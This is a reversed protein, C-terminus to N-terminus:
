VLLYNVGALSDPADASFAGPLPNMESLTSVARHYRKAVSWLTDEHSPYAVTYSAGARPLEEDLVADYFATIEGDAFTLIRVAIEADVAIREGDMRARCTIPTLEVEYSSPMEREGECLYRFPVEFEQVTYDEEASLITQCRCKGNLVYKGNVTEFSALTPYLTLDVVNQGTRIGAEEVPLTTNLSFNGGTCLLFRSVPYSRYSVEGDAATSYLDRTYSVTGNRYARATLHVGLELLIRGEEVTVLIDSCVGRCFAVCNVEAGDVPIEASFPIRRNQVTPLEKEGERCCLLKVAVEGRCNVCGSGADADSIYVQGEASIVRDSAGGDTLIEDGLRIEDGMGVFIEACETSGMLRELGVDPSGMIREELLRMGYLRVRSHLRCKINLKRPGSVRGQPLEPVTEVDCTLGAGLDFDASAEVPCTFRYEESQDVCYLAGDSGAYLIAYNVTGSFEANGVGIYKETPSVTARIRLLRKIEPQYDPLTFDSVTETLVTRDCIEGVMRTSGTNMNKINDM